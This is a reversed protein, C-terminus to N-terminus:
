INTTAAEAAATQLPEDNQPPDQDPLAEPQEDLTLWNLIEYYKRVNEVYRVPEWGRAYGSPVQSYWKHQALLPLTEALDIWRQPNGGQMRVIRQADRVHSYGVNYAALAFWTRDPEPIDDLQTRLKAFYRAGAPISEQPDARDAVGMYRATVRTLMMLGRVGTPSVAAPDWHSEQYGIAALLRWDITTDNEATRFLQKYNDLRLDHHRIFTRTGVYDFKDIHGYYRELIQNLTGNAKIRAFYEEADMRLQGSFSRPFAWALQDGAPQGDDAVADEKHLNMAIALDPMYQRHVAFDTTDAITYDIQQAEVAILLESIESNPNETWALEPNAAQMAALTEGYVSGGMIELRKGQLDDLSRPKGSGRRYVLHQQVDQYSPGFTVHEAREATVTLGAAALHVDGNEVAPLLDAFREATQYSVNIPREYKNRLYEAFGEVLLYEPGEYGSAGRFYTTPSNRTMVRIEGSSLIEDLTGPSKACTSLILALVIITAKHM